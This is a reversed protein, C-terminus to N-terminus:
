QALESESVVDFERSTVVVITNFNRLEVSWVDHGCGGIVDGIAGYHICKKNLQVVALSFKGSSTQM